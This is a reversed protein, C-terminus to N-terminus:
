NESSSSTRMRAVLMGTAFLVTITLPL